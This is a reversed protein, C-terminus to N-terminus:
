GPVHLGNIRCDYAWPKHASLLMGHFLENQEKKM